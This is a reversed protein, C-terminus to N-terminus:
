SSALGIEDVATYAIDGSELSYQIVKTAESRSLPRLCDVLDQLKMPGNKLYQCILKREQENGEPYSKGTKDHKKQICIDCIGCTQSLTEGFYAVIKITRCIQNQRVYSEIADIKTRSREKKALYSNWIIPLNELNARPALLTLKPLGNQKEYEIMEFKELLLLTREIDALPSKFLQSISAESITVFQTYLNGGYQRLLFKIISEFKENRIQFDYLETASVKIKIKSPNQMAESMLLLGESELTKLAFFTESTPLQFRRCMEQWDFDYSTMEGSGEAIQLYNSLAQYTKKITETTPYSKEWQSHLEIIDNEQAIIVAFAKKEDRGARGAEQYYAELSDPLDLHVVLRVDPKDIGMGFANTAVMCQFKNQIWDEQKSKRLDLALGAHYFSASIGQESLIQAIEQTKRRNRAYIICSGGVKQIMQVLKQEKLDDWLISYSLNARSFSKQFIQPNKLALKELIDQKVPPTASATLALCTVAPFLDKFEKIALYSPRFDYGWQSICHAEDVAILNINMQKARALFLDTKLREPSIYLFKTDGYICNDLLIDIQRASMGSYIAVASIGRKQLQAVQDQMLAILPSIVICIGDQALAPVQFCISKGGGTPLLALTDKQDLVAQIIEEQLPRFATYGWYKHLIEQLSNM